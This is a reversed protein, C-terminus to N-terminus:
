DAESGPFASTGGLKLLKVNLNIAAAAAIMIELHSGARGGEARRSTTVSGRGRGIGMELNFGIEVIAFSQLTGIRALSPVTSGCIPGDDVNWGAGLSNM